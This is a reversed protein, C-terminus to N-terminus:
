FVFLVSKVVDAVLALSLEEVELHLEVWMSTFSSESAVTASTSFLYQKNIIPASSSSSSSDKTAKRESMILMMRYPASM